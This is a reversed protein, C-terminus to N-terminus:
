GNQIKASLRDNLEQAGNYGMKKLRHNSAAVEIVIALNRGPRVPLTLKPLKVGLVATFDENLGLRDYEKNNDWLELHIVMDISKSNIVAGVGYMNKVNIIGVGRIEMFHRVMEPAEGVLRVDSVKCIEVVDDAVLRHGRKVLELAAESKGVGSEGTLLIGVGYVDVLVGHRTIHPALVRNLYMIAQLSFKTTKLKSQFVPVDHARAIELLDRPPTMGWCTIICPIPYSMYKELVPRRMRSELSELYTMEVKGIVQVREHAFYEYFGCFQMGPRNIDTVNIDLQKKTTPGLLELGLKTRFDELDIM